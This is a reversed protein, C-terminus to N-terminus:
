FSIYHCPGVVRRCGVLYVKGLSEMQVSKTWRSEYVHATRRLLGRYTHVEIIQNTRLARNMVLLVGDESRNLAVTEGRNVVVPEGDIVEQVEYSCARRSEIREECRPLLSSTALTRESLEDGATYDKEEEQLVISTCPVPTAELIDTSM